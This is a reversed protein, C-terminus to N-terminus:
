PWGSARTSCPAVGPRGAASALSFPSCLSHCSSRSIGSSGPSSGFRPPASRERTSRTPGRTPERQSGSPRTIGGCRPSHRRRPEAKPLTYFSEIAPGSLAFLLAAVAAQLPTAGASRVLRALIALVGAFLLVNVIFFALPRVGVIGFIASYLLWYAPFFRGTEP